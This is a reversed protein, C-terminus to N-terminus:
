VLLNGYTCCMTILIVHKSPASNSRFCLVSGFLLLMFKFDGSSYFLILWYYKALWLSHSNNLYKKLRSYKIVSPVRHRYLQIPLNADPVLVLSIQQYLQCRIDIGFRNSPLTPMSYRHCQTGDLRSFGYRYWIPM